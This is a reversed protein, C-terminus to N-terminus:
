TDQEPVCESHRPNFGSQFVSGSVPSRYDCLERTGPLFLRIEAPSKFSGSAGIDGYHDFMIIIRTQLILCAITPRLTEGQTHIFYM